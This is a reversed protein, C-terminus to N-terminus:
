RPQLRLVGTTTQSNNPNFRATTTNANSNDDASATRACDITMESGVATVSFEESFGIPGPPLTVKVADTVVCCPPPTGPPVMWNMSSLVMATSPQAETDM